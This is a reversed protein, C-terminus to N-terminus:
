RYGRSEIQAQTWATEASGTCRLITSAAVSGQIYGQKLSLVLRQWLMNDMPPETVTLAGTRSGCRLSTKEVAFRVCHENSLSLTRSPAM